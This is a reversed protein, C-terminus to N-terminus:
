KNNYRRRKFTVNKHPLKSKSKKRNSQSGSRSSPNVKRYKPSSKQKKNKNNRKYKNKRTHNNTKKPSHPNRTRITGGGRAVGGHGGQKKPVKSVPPPAAINGVGTLRALGAIAKVAIAKVAKAKTLTTKDLATTTEKKNVGIQPKEEVDVSDKIPLKKKSQTPSKGPPQMETAVTVQKARFVCGADINPYESDILVNVQDLNEQTIVIAFGVTDLIDDIVSIIYSDLSFIEDENILYKLLLIFLKMNKYVSSPVTEQATDFINLIGRVLYIIWKTRFYRSTCAGGVM